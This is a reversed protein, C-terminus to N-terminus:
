GPNETCCYWSAKAFLYSTNLTNGTHLIKRYLVQFQTHIHKLSIKNYIGDLFGRTERKGSTKEPCHLATSVYIILFPQQPLSLNKIEQLYDCRSRCFLHIKRKNEPGHARPSHLIIEYVSSVKLRAKQLHKAVIEPNGSVM